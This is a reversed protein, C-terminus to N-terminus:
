QIEKLRLVVTDGVRELSLMDSAAVDNQTVNEIQFPFLAPHQCIEEWSMYEHSTVKIITACILSVIQVDDIKYSIPRYTGDRGIPELVGIDKLSQLNKSLSHVLTERAGWLEFVKEKIQALKVDDRYKLLSGIVAVLDLFIPYRILLLAWHIPLRDGTTIENLLQIAKEQFPSENRYWVNLLIDRTKRINDKSTLSQSLMEDLHEHAETITKGFRQCDAAENLWGITFNRALGVQKNM